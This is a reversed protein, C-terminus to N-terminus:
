DTDLGIETYWGLINEKKWVSVSTLHKGTGWQILSSDKTKIRESGVVEM